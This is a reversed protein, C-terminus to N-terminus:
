FQDDSEELFIASSIEGDIQSIQVGDSFSSDSDLHQLNLDFHCGTRLSERRLGWFIQPVMDPKTSTFKWGMFNHCHNCYCCTWAYDPFWSFDTSPNGVTKVSASAVTIVEHMAGAPNVYTGIGGERALCIVESMATVLNNCSRCVVMSSSRLISLIQLFREVLNDYSLLMMKQWGSIPLNHMLWYSFPVALETNWHDISWTAHWRHLEM